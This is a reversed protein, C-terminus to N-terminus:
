FCHCNFFIHYSVIKFFSCEPQLSPDVTLCVPQEELTGSNLEWCGCPSECGDTIPDSVRKQCASTCASLASMYRFYIFLIFRLIKKANM